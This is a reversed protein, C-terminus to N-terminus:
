RASGASFHRHWGRSGNVVRDFHFRSLHMQAALDPSRAEHDDLHAALSDVFRM